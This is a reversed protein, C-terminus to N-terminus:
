WVLTTYLRKRWNNYPELSKERNYFIQVHSYPFEHRGVQKMVFFVVYARRKKERREVNEAYSWQFRTNRKDRSRQKVRRLTTNRSVTSLMQRVPSMFHYISRIMCRRVRDSVSRSHFTYRSLFIRYKQAGFIAPGNIYDFNDFFVYRYPLPLRNKNLSSGYITLTNDIIEEDRLRIVLSEIRTYRVIEYEEGDETTCERTEEINRIAIDYITNDVYNEIVTTPSDDLASSQFPNNVFVIDYTRTRRITKTRWGAHM